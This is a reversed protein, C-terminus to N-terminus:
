GIVPFHEDDYRDLNEGIIQMVIALPHKGDGQVEDILEDLIKELKLYERSNSPKKFVTIPLQFAHKTKQDVYNIKLTEHRM